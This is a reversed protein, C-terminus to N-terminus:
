QGGRKKRKKRQHTEERKRERVRHDGELYRDKV